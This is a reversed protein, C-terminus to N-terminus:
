DEGDGDEDDYDIARKKAARERLSQKPNDGEWEWAFEKNTGVLEIFRDTIRSPKIGSSLYIAATLLWILSGFLAFAGAPMRAGEPLEDWGAALAIGVVVWFLLGLYLFLRRNRWANAHDRCVPVEVTMSKRLILCALLWPLAGAFIFLHAWGPMWAFRVSLLQDVEAGCRMCIDPFQEGDREDRYVRIKAM